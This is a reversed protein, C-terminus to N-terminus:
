SVNHLRKPRINDLWPCIAVKGTVLEYLERGEIWEDWNGDSFVSIKQGSADKIALLCATVLADYPLRATKTFNFALGRAPYIRGFWFTEYSQKDFGNFVIKDDDVIWGGEIEGSGDAVIIGRSEAAVILQKVVGSFAAYEEDYNATPKRDWYHTYGM